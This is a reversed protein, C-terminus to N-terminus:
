VLEGIAWVIENENESSRGWNSVGYGSQQKVAHHIDSFVRGGDNSPDEPKVDPKLTIYVFEVVKHEM